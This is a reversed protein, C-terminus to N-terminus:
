GPQLCEETRTKRRLTFYSIAIGLLLGAFMFTTVNFNEIPVQVLVTDGLSKPLGKLYFSSEFILWERRLFGAFVVSTLVILITLLRRKTPRIPAFRWLLTAGIPILALTLAYGLMGTFQGGLHTEIFSVGDIRPLIWQFFWGYSYVGFFFLLFATITTIAITLASTKM